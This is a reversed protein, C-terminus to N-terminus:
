YKGILFDVLKGPVQETGFSVMNEKIGKNIQIKQSRSLHERWDEDGEEYKKYMQEYLDPHYFLVYLMDWNKWKERNTSSAQKRIKRLILERYLIFISNSSKMLEEFEFRRGYASEIVRMPIERNSFCSFRFAKTLLKEFEAREKQQKKEAEKIANKLNKIEENM